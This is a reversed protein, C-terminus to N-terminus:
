QKRRAYSVGRDKFSMNPNALENKILIQSDYISIKKIPTDGQGFNIQFDKSIEPFNHWFKSM